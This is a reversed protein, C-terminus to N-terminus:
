RTCSCSKLTVRLLLKQRTHFSSRKRLKRPAAKMELEEEVKLPQPGRKARALFGNSVLWKRAPACIKDSKKLKPLKKDLDIFNIVFSDICKGKTYDKSFVKLQLTDSLIDMVIVTYADCWKPDSPQTEFVDGINIREYQNVIFKKM